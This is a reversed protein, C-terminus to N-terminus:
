ENKLKGPNVIGKHDVATKISGVIRDACADLARWLFPKSGASIRIQEILDGGCDAIEHILEPSAKSMWDSEDSSGGGSVFCCHINGSGGHGFTLATLGAGSAVRNLNGVLGSIRNPAIKIDNLLAAEGSSVISKFISKRATWLKSQEESEVDELVWGGSVRVLDMSKSAHEDCVSKCGEIGVILTPTNPLEIRMRGRVMEISKEDILEIACACITAELMECLADCASTIDKFGFAIVRRSEPAPLLRVIIKTIIGLTGRSGVLLRTLDYGVVNKVTRGGLNLVKGEPTVIEIGLVHDRMTGYKFSRLGVAQDAVNGGITSISESTPDVAFMLGKAQIENRFRQTVMGPEVEAYLDAKSVSVIRDMLEFSILIGGLLPTAGGRIGSGGGRATIAVGEQYGLEVVKAVEDTCRPKVVADPKSVYGSADSSYLMLSAQDTIIQDPKLLEKLKRLYSLRAEM